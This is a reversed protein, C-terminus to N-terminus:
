GYDVRGLEQETAVRGYLDLGFYGVGLFLQDEDTFRSSATYLLCLFQPSFCLFAYFDQNVGGIEMPPVRLFAM